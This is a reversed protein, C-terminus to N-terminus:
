LYMMQLMVDLEKNAVLKDIVPTTIVLPYSLKKKMKFTTTFPINGNKDQHTVLFDIKNIIDGIAKQITRVGRDEQKSVRRIFYECLDDSMSVSEKSKCISKLAKPLIYDQIIKIKDNKSYGKIEITWWRDALASDTPISNMSGIYWIHSLDITIDGLFNDRFEHNQSQDVLHLLAARIDPHVAAKELEDLFIVGNKHGMRRLSKVIAGPQAGIYTYEHGKLFDAKDVGGFSIQEFGWDMLKAIMRAIATKGVGPPGVLGLNSRKMGPNTLKASLFLLIQEKAKKMGFLEEDLKRSAEMIFRTIDSHKKRKNNRTSVKIEKINDHPISTAWELWHKLKSYEECSSELNQLDEYRRYIAVKNARSTKLNLIKYKLTLQPNYNTLSKEEEAMRKHEKDTFKIHQKYGVKYEKFMTNYRNRAELWEMTNPQSSKYIEYFQCLKARDELRLPTKLLVKVNPETKELEEQVTQLSKHLEPDSKKLNELEEDFDIYDEEEFDIYDEESSEIEEIPLEDLEGNRVKLEELPDPVSKPSDGTRKRKNDNINDDLLTSPRKRLNHSM